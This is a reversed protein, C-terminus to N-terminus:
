LYKLSFMTANEETYFKFMTYPHTWTGSDTYGGPRYAFDFDTSQVLGAARLEHVIEVVRGANIGDLRTEIMAM